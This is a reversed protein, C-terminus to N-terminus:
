LSLRIITRINIIIRKWLPLAMIESHYSWWDNYLQRRAEIIKDLEARRKVPDFEHDFVRIRKNVLTTERILLQKHTKVLEIIM